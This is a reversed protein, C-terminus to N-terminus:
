LDPGASLHFEISRDADEDLGHAIDIRVPGVPSNWRLGVGVGLKPDPSGDSWADGADAFVAWAFRPRFTREYEVSATLVHKGGIPDDEINREGISQYGYGRVSRDGGAYFRLEPPLDALRDVGTAGAEGRLLLRANEGLSRIWRAELRAQYFATDSLLGDSAARTTLRLSAGERPRIRDEAFVRSLVLEPYLVQKTTRVPEPPDTPTAGVVYDSQLYNVSGLATWEGWPAIVSTSLLYSQSKVVETDEDRYRLGVAYSGIASGPRPIRYESIISTLKQALEIEARLTHGRSNVWRRDMAARVGAGYDTQYFVGGTYLTRKNPVVVVRIPVRLSKAAEPEPTVTVQEFYDSGALRQQLEVLRVQDYPAGAEFDVYRSLFGPVFQSGEFRVEGLRYRPGTDWRLAIKASNEARSVEVRQEIARADLYGFRRLAREIRRRSAEYTPHRFPEGIEPEFRALAQRLERETNNEGDGQLALARAVVRVPEGRDVTFVARYGGEREATRTDVSANYYGYTELAQKIQAPALATLREFRARSINKRDAYASLDLNALISRREAEGVGRIEVVVAPVVAPEVPKPAAVAVGAVGLASASAVLLHAFMRLAVSPHFRMVARNHGGATNGPRSEAAQPERAYGAGSLVQPVPALGFNRCSQM